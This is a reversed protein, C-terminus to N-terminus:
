IGFLVKAYNKYSLLFDSLKRLLEQSKEDKFIDNVSVEHKDHSNFKSADCYVQMGLQGNEYKIVFRPNTYLIKDSWDTWDYTMFKQADHQFGESVETGKLFKALPCEHNNIINNIEQKIEKILDNYSDNVFNQFVYREYENSIGFYSGLKKCEDSNGDKGFFVERIDRGNNDCNRFNEYQFVNIVIKKNFGNIRCFACFRSFLTEDFSLRKENNVKKMLFYTALAGFGIGASTGLIIGGAMQAQNFKCTAQSTRNGFFLSCVLALAIKKNFKKM